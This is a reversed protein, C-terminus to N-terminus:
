AKGSVRDASGFKKRNERRAKAVNKEFLLRLDSSFSPSNADITLIKTARGNPSIVRKEVLSGQEAERAPERNLKRIVIKAVDAKALDAELLQV